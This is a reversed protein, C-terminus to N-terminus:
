LAPMGPGLKVHHFKRGQEFHGRLEARRTKMRQMVVRRSAM